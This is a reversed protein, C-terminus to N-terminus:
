EYDAIEMEAAEVIKLAKDMKCKVRNKAKYMSFSDSYKHPTFNVSLVNAGYKLARVQNETGLVSSSPIYVNQKLCLRMLAIFRLTLEIDGAIFNRYASDANPSFTSCSAMDPNIMSLLVLDKCMDDITTNPLGIIVGTGIKIGLAQAYLIHALRETLCSEPKATKFAIDNSTEFKMIYRTVGNRMLDDYEAASQKGLVATISLGKSKAYSISRLLCDRNYRQSEGGVLHLQKIGNEAILDITEKLEEETLQYRNLKINSSAMGCYKCNNDCINSFELTARLFVNNGMYKERRYRSAEFLNNSQKKDYTFLKKIINITSIQQQALLLKNHALQFYYSNLNTM